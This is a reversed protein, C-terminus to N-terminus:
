HSCGSSKEDKSLRAGTVALLVGILYWFILAVRSYYLSSETLGNILFALLGASLFVALDRMRPDRLRKIKGVAERGLVTLFWIFLALGGLGVEGAMHLFNNHAYMYDSTVVGRYEPSEKYHRYNKMYTNIGVGIVPHDRIMNLSNRYVAIRDDNCFFRVPNYDVSKVWDRVSHPLLLPSICLVVLLGITLVRDKKILGVCLMSLYLALLTPRSYTLVVAAILLLGVVAYIIGRRAERRYLAMGLVVPALASLYIGLVNSDVFSATARTLGINIIPPYGRLFDRGTAVQWLSDVSALAIGLMMGAIIRALHKKDEVGSAIVSFVMLYQFLKFLGRFSDKFSVTNLLSLASFAMFILFVGTLRNKFPKEGKGTFTKVLFAALMFGMFINMPANGMAMGVPVAVMAWYLIKGSFTHLHAKM